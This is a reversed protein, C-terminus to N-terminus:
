SLGPMVEAALREMQDRDDFLPNLVIMQAGADAVERLGAVCDGPTGAVAVAALDTRGYIRTLADAIRGQAREADDDVAIYVRKAIPFGAPDRQQEALAERLVQVQEVFQATTSSGAGIFADGLRVARRVANPHSGGFWIPPHPRQRPKPEMVADRLQWFRGDFNVKPQTWLENMLRLGEVFRATLTDPDVGFASLMRGRGGIGVGVDLRGLSLQDLTAVSKALHAPSHLASILVACGLRIRSTCAAAYSLTEMPGLGPSGLVGETTWAGEFGLAEARTLYERFGVSDFSGSSVAQPMSIAFRM